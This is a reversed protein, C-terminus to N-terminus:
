FCGMFDSLETVKFGFTTFYDKMGERLVEEGVFYGIQRVFRAGKRYCIKDFVNVADVTNSVTVQVPHTTVAKDEVVAASFYNHLHQEPNKIDKKFKTQLAQLCEGASYDAFSEKLWLDDWWKMTVLDGFWMHSAEHVLVKYFLALSEETSEQKPKFHRDTMNVLGVNEMGSIRFEPCFVTDYKAFPFPVQFFDEFFLLTQETM